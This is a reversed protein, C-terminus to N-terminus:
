ELLINNKIYEMLYKELRKLQTPGHHHAFEPTQAKLDEPMTDRMFRNGCFNWINIIRKNQNIIKIKEFGKFGKIHGMDFGNCMDWMLYPIKQNELYGAFMIIDTFLKDWYTKINPIVKYYQDSLKKVEAISSDQINYDDSIFNSNQLPIWSGDLEDDDKNIALEWRHSFTIPIMVFNPKGNQAIWEVTTRCTRQFSTGPKGLNILSDCNVYTVLEESVKWFKAFSCGNILLTKM